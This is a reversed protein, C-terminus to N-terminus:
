LRNGNKQTPPIIIRVRVSRLRDLGAAFIGTVRGPTDYLKGFLQGGLGWVVGNVEEEEIRKNLRDAPSSSNIVVM